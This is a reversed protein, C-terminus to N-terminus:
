SKLSPSNVCMIDISEFKGAAETFNVAQIVISLKLPLMICLKLVRVYSADSCVGVKSTSGVRFM